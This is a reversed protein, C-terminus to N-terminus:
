EETKMTKGVLELNTSRSPQTTRGSVSGASDEEMRWRMWAQGRAPASLDSQIQARRCGVMSDHAAVVRRPAQLSGGVEMHAVMEWWADGDGVIEGVGDMKMWLDMAVWRVVAVM